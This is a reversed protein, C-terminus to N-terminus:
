LLMPAVRAVWPAVAQGASWLTRGATWAGKAWAAASAAQELKRGIHAIRADIGLPGRAPVGPVHVEPARGRESRVPPDAEVVDQVPTVTYM